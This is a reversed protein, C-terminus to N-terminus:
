CTPGGSPVHPDQPGQREVEDAIERLLAALEVGHWGRTLTVNGFEYASGDDLFAVIRVSVTPETM